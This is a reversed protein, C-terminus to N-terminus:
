RLLAKVPEPLEGAHKLLQSVQWLQTESLSGEFGPMGTLRIGNRVKWHTEGVPDDTVGEGPPLLAPPRPFMGVAPASRRTEGLAGHCLICQERYVNAGALLNAEAAPVPSPRDAEKVMAVHLARSSLFEELPLPRADRASAPMGGQTLFLYGAVLVLVIGALLGALFRM